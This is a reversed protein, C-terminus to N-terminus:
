LTVLIDPFKSYLQPGTTWSMSTKANYFEHISHLTQLLTSTSTIYTVKVKTTETVTDITTVRKYTAKDLDELDFDFKFSIPTSLSM